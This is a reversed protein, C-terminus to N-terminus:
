GERNESIFLAPPEKTSYRQSDPFMIVGTNFVWSVQISEPHRALLRREIRRM